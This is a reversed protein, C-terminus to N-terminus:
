GATYPGETGGSIQWVTPDVRADREEFTLAGQAGEFGEATVEDLGKKIGDRGDGGAQAALAILWVADFGSANFQNPPTGKAEQEAARALHEALPTLFSIGSLGM